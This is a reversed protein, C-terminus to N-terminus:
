FENCKGHQVKDHGSWWPAKLAGSATWALTGASNIKVTVTGNTPTCWITAGKVAKLRNVAKKQPHHHRNGKGASIVVWWPRIAKDLKESSSSNAGHHTM